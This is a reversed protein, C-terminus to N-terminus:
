FKFGIRAGIDNLGENRTALDANSIHNYSLAVSWQPTIRYGIDLDERFLVNSGLSKRQQSAIPGTVNIKGDNWGPGETLEVYFGDNERLVNEAFNWTWTLGAYAQSTEGSTNILYGIIPRPSWIVSLFSPSTFLVENGLDAGTEKQHGLVSADHDYVGFRVEDIISQDDAVAIGPATVAMALAALLIHSRRMSGRISHFASHGRVTAPSAGFKWGPSVDGSDSFGSQLGIRPLDIVM